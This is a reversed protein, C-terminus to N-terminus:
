RGRRVGLSMQRDDGWAISPEVSWDRVPIGAELFLAGHYTLVAGGRVFARQQVPVGLGVRLTTIPPLPEGDNWGLFGHLKRERGVRVSMISANRKDSLDATHSGLGMARGYRFGWSGEESRIVAFVGTTNVSQEEPLM